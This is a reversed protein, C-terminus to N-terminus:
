SLVGITVDTVPGGISFVAQLTLELRSCQNYCRNSCLLGITVDTVNNVYILPVLLYNIIGITVDTVSVM